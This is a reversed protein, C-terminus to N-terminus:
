LWLLGCFRLLPAAPRPSLSVQSRGTGRTQNQRVVHWLERERFDVSGRSGPTPIGVGARFPLKSEPGCTRGLDVSGWPPWVVARSQIQDGLLQQTKNQTKKKSLGSCHLISPVLYMFVQHQIELLNM